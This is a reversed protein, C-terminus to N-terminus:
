KIKVLLQLLLQDRDREASRPLLSALKEGLYALIRYIKTARNHLVRKLKADRPMEPRFPQSLRDTNVNVSDMPSSFFTPKVNVHDLFAPEM